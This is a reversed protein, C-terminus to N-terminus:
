FSHNIRKSMLRGCFFCHVGLLVISSVTMINAMYHYWNDCYVYMTSRYRFHHCAHSFHLHMYAMGQLAACPLIARQHIRCMTIAHTNRQLFIGSCANIRTFLSADSFFSGTATLQWRINNRQDNMGIARKRWRWRTMATLRTHVVIRWTFWEIDPVLPIIKAHPQLGLWGGTWRVLTKSCHFAHFGIDVVIAQYGVATTSEMTTIWGIAHGTNAYSMDEISEFWKIDMKVLSRGYVRKHCLLTTSYLHM